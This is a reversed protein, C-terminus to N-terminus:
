AATDIVNENTGYVIYLADKLGQIRSLLQNFQFDIADFDEKTLYTSDFDDQAQERYVAIRDLVQTLSSLYATYDEQLSATIPRPQVPLTNIRESLQHVYQGESEISIRYSEAMKASAAEDREETADKEPQHSTARSLDSSASASCGAFPLTLASILVICFFQKM